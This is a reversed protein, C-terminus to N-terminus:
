AKLNQPLKNNLFVYDFYCVYIHKEFCLFLPSVIGNYTHVYM